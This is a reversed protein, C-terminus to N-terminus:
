KLQEKLRKLASEIGNIRCNNCIDHNTNCFNFSAITFVVSIPYNCREQIIINGDAEFQTKPVEDIQEKCLNCITIKM